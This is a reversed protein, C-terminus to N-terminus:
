NHRSNKYKRAETQQAFAKLHDNFTNLVQTKRRTNADMPAAESGINFTRDKIKVTRELVNNDFRTEYAVYVAEALLGRESLSLDDEFAAGKYVSVTFETGATFDGNIKVDGTTSDYSVVTVPTYQPVGFKDPEVVGVSCIGYGTLDTTLTAEGSIIDDTEVIVDDYQPFTTKELKEATGMPRDVMPIAAEMYARMRNYFVPLRNEMDYELSTDNKIYTMASTEIQEWSTGM